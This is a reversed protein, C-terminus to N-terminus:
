ETKNDKINFTDFEKGDVLQEDPEHPTLVMKGATMNEYYDKVSAQFQSLTFKKHITSHLTSDQMLRTVKRFVQIIWMGQEKIYTGLIFSRLVQNRGIMQLPDIGELPKESLCGYLAVHSRSPLVEMLQATFPGGVCEICTTAKLEAALKKIDEFFTESSSNLVHKAGYQEKLLKVQEERRVVNILPINELQCLKIIMRGCQSAAGTQIAAPSKNDKIRQVLGMATLPNVFFMCGIDYPVNEPLEFVTMAGAIAYQQYCGGAIMTIGDPENKRVFAIRKGVLRNAM